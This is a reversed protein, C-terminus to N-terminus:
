YIDPLLASVQTQFRLPILHRAELSVALAQAKDECTFFMYPINEVFNGCYYCKGEDVRMQQMRTGTFFAKFTIRWLFLNDRKHLCLISNQFPRIDWIGVGGLDTSLAVRRWAALAVKAKGDSNSGWLFISFLRDIMHLDQMRFKVLALAFPMLAQILFRLVVVRAEFSLQRGIYRSLKKLIKDSAAWSGFWELLWIVVQFTAPSTDTLFATDDVFASTMPLRRVNNLAFRRLHGMCCYQMAEMYTPGVFGWVALLAEANFGDFGPARCKASDRLIDTFESLTPMDDMYSLSEASVEDALELIGNTIEPTVEISASLNELDRKKVDLQSLRRVHSYQLDKVEKRMVNWAEVFLELGIARSNACTTSWLCKLRDYIEPRSLLWADAKFYFSRHEAQPVQQQNSILLSVPIHDSMQYADHHISSTFEDQLMWFQIRQLTDHPAHIGALHFAEGQLSFSRWLFKSSVERGELVTVSSHILFAIGGSAGESDAGIVVYDQSITSVLFTLSQVSMHM